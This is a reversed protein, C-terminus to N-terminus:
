MVRFTGPRLETVIQGYGSKQLAPLQQRLKMSIPAEDFTTLRLSLGAMGGNSYKFGDGKVPRYAGCGGWVLGGLVELIAALPRFKTYRAATGAARPKAAKWDLM